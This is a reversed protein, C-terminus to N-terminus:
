LAVCTMGRCARAPAAPLDVASGCCDADSQCAGGEDVCCRSSTDGSWCSLGDCCADPGQTSSCETAGLDRCEPDDPGGTTPDGTGDASSSGEGMEECAGSSLAECSATALCDIADDQASGCFDDCAPAAEEPSLDACEMLREVCLQSCQVNSGSTASDSGDDTAASSIGDDDSGSNGDSITVCGLELLAISLLSLSLNVRM